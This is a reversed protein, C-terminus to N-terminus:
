RTGVVHYFHWDLMQMLDMTAERARDRAPSALAERMAEVSPYDIQQLMVVPRTEHDSELARVYRVNSAHPFEEWLPLLRNEVEQFFHEEHGPQIRGEFIATRTIM